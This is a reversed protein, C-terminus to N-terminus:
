FQNQVATFVQVHGQLAHQLASRVSRTMSAMQAIPLTSDGSDALVDMTKTVM